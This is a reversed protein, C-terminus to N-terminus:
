RTAHSEEGERKDHQDAHHDALQRALHDREAQVRMLARLLLGNQRKLVALEETTPPTM